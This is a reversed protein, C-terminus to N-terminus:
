SGYFYDLSACKSWDLGGVLAVGPEIGPHLGLFPLVLL